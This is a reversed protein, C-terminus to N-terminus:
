GTPTTEALTRRLIDLVAIDKPRGAEAKVRILAPLGLVRVSLDGLRLIDSHEVLGPHDNGAGIEGLVDLPGARTMLLHHGRGALASAEPRLVRGAPDRYRADLETLAALLRRVNDSGREHVIDLDFTSIPAGALVAAVGRVVIYDVRHRSLVELADRFRPAPGLV